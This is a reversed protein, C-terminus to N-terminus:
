DLRHKYFNFVRKSSILDLHGEWFPLNLNRVNPQEALYEPYFGNVNQQWESLVYVYDTSSWVATFEVDEPLPGTNLAGLFPGDPEFSEFSEPTYGLLYRTWKSAEKTGGVGQHPTGLTILDDVYRHGKRKQICWRAGLGGMSHAIVDVRRDKKRHLLSLRECIVEGYRRPHDITLGPLDGLNMRYLDEAPYGSRRLYYDLRDWWPSWHVDAFGHIM